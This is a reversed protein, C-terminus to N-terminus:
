RINHKRKYALIARGARVQSVRMVKATARIGRSTQLFYNVIQQDTPM